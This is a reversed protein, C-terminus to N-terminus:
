VFHFFKKIQKANGSLRHEKDALALHFYSFHAEFPRFTYINFISGFGFIYFQWWGKWMWANLMWKWCVCAKMCLFNFIPTYSSMLITEVKVMSHCIFLYIRINIISLYKFDFVLFIFCNLTHIILLSTLILLLFSTNGRNVWIKM